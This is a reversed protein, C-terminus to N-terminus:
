VILGGIIDKISTFGHRDLYDNIGDAVKVVVSTRLVNAIFKLLGLVILLGLFIMFFAIIRMVTTSLYTAVVDTVDMGDAVGIGKAIMDAFISPINLAKNLIENVTFETIGKDTMYETINGCINEYINPYIIDNNILVKAFQGCYMISFILISIIGVFSLLKKMFGQKYGIIMTIIFFLILFIDIIGIIGLDM